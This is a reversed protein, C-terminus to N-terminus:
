AAIAKAIGAEEKQGQDTLEKFLDGGSAPLSGGLDKIAVLAHWLLDRSVENFIQEGDRQKIFELGTFM